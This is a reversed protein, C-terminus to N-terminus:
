FPSFRRQPSGTARRSGLRQTLRQREHGLGSVVLVFLVALVVVSTTTSAPPVNERVVGASRARSGSDCTARRAHCLERAPIGSAGTWSEFSSNLYCINYSDRFTPFTGKKCDNPENALLHATKPVGCSRHLLPALRSGPSPFLTLLALDLKYLRLLSHALKWCVVQKDTTETYSRVSLASVPTARPGAETSINSM